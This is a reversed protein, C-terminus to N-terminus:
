TETWRVTQGSSLAVVRAVDHGRVVIGAEALRRALELDLAALRSPEARARPAEHEYEGAAPSAPRRVPEAASPGAAFMAELEAGFRELAALGDRAFRDISDPDQGDSGPPPLDDAQERAARSEERRPGREADARDRADRDRADRERADRERLLTRRELVLREVAHPYDAIAHAHPACDFWWPAVEPPRRPTRIAAAAPRSTPIAGWITM